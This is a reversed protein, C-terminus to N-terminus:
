VALLIRGMQRGSELHEQADAAQRLPYDRDIVPHLHGAFVLDMVTAFDRHTGMTSGLISLHKGFVFRNDIEVIPGGSNGVTLIRGGKRAARMSYPLSGAGVNDVVVDVGKRGNAKFVATSWDEVESRDIVVDAGLSRALELKEPSSGVVFVTAGALKAIQICATSVGGSAGIILVAEGARLGGRSILSHWGTLFVLAAAAASRTEFGDPISLANVAPVSVLEAYTGQITEGLLHWRRCQNDKGALCAECRGCSISPNVVVRQGIEMEEVTEGVADVQGAADAGLIHPYELKLGPWGKRTWLDSANLAIWQIRVRVHDPKVEPNPLDGYQLVEPGGHKEIYIAKLDVDGDTNTTTPKLRDIAL